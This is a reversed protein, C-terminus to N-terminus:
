VQAISIAKENMSDISKMAKVASEYARNAQIMNTMEKVTNVNSGEIVGQRIRSDKSIIPVNDRTVPAYFSRGLKQLGQSDRFRVVKLTDVAKGDVNVGGDQDIVIEKGKVQIPGKQGLVAYGDHTVMRGEQDMTFEGSRTYREGQPTDITFFGENEVAVDLTNGTYNMTGPSFNKGVSDVMVASKDLGQYMDIYEHTLFSEEDSEPAVATAKSLVERFSLRDEKYGSTNVNALNNSINDLKKQLVNTSSVLSFLGSDM